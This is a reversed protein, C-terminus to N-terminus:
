DRPNKFPTEECAGKEANAKLEQFNTAIPLVVEYVDREKVRVETETKGSFYEKLQLTVERGYNTTGVCSKTYVVADKAQISVNSTRHRMVYCTVIVPMFLAAIGGAIRLGRWKVPTEQM